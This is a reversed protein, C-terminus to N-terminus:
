INVLRVHIPKIPIDFSVLPEFVLEVLKIVQEVLNLGVLTILKIPQNLSISTFVVITGM